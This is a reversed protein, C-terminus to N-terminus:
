GKYMFDYYTRGINRNWYQYGMLDSADHNGPLMFLPAEFKGAHSKFLEWQEVVSASDNSGEIQDGVTIIFDPKLLNIEQVARDFLPWNRDLGGSKDGLIVFSFKQPDTPLARTGLVPADAAASMEVRQVPNTAPGQKACSAAVLVIGALVIRVPTKM